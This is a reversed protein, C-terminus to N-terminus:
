VQKKSSGTHKQTVAEVKVGTNPIKITDLYVKSLNKNHQTGEVHKAYGLIINLSDGDKM